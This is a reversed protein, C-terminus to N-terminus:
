TKTLNLPDSAVAQGLNFQAPPASGIEPRADNTFLESPADGEESTFNTQSSPYLENNVVIQNVSDPPQCLLIELRCFVARM